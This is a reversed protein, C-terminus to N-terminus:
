LNINGHSTKSWGSFVLDTNKALMIEPIKKKKEYFGVSKNSIRSDVASFFM